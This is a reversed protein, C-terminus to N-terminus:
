LVLRFGLTIETSRYGDITGVTPQFYRFETDMIIGPSIKYGLGVMVQYFDTDVSSDGFAVGDIVWDEFYVRGRGYGVGIHPVWPTRTHIDLIVNAMIAAVIFNGTAECSTALLCYVMDPDSIDDLHQRRYSAELEVRLGGVYKPYAVAYGVAAIGGYGYDMNFTVNTPDDHAKPNSGLAHVSVYLGSDFEEKEQAQVTNALLFFAFGAFIGISHKM